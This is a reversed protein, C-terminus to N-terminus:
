CTKVQSEPVELGVPVTYYKDEIKVVCDINNNKLTYYLCNKSQAWNCELAKYNSQLTNFKTTLSSYDDQLAKLQDALNQRESVCTDVNKQSKDIQIKVNELDTKTKSLDNKCTELQNKTNQLDVELGAMQKEMVMVKSQAETIRATYTVYGTYSLAVLAVLVIPILLLVWKSKVNEDFHLEQKFAEWRDKLKAFFRKIPSGKKDEYPEYM